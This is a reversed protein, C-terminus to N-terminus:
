VLALTEAWVAVKELYPARWKVSEPKKVIFDFNM